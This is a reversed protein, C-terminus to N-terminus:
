RASAKKARDDALQRKLNDFYDVEFPTAITPDAKFEALRRDLEAIQEVSEEWDSDSSSVRDALFQGFWKTLRSLDPPALQRIEEEIQDVSM